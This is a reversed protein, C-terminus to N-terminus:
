QLDKKITRKLRTLLQSYGERVSNFFFPQPKMNVERVGKGVFMAKIM